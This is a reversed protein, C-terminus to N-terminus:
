LAALLPRVRTTPWVMRTPFGPLMVPNPREATPAVLTVLHVLVNVDCPKAVFYDGGAYDVMKALYARTMGDTPAAILIVPIDRTSPDRRLQSCVDYGDIDPLCTDLIIVDPPEVEVQLLVDSGSSAPVIRYGADELHWTLNKRSAIDGDAVLVRVPQQQM